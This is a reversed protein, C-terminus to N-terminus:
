SRRARERKSMFADDDDDIVKEEGRWETDVMWRRLRRHRHRSGDNWGDM